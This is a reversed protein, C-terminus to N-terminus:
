FGVHEKWRSVQLTRLASLTQVERHCLHHAVHVPLAHLTADGFLLQQVQFLSAFM